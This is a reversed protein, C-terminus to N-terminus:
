IIKKFQNVIYNGIIGGFLFAEVTLFFSYIIIKM